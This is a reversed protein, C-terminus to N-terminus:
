DSSDAGDYVEKAMEAAAKIERKSLMNLEKALEKFQPITENKAAALAFCGVTTTVGKQLGEHHGTIYGLAIGIIGSILVAWFITM